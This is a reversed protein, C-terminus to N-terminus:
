RSRLSNTFANEDAEAERRRRLVQLLGYIAFGVSMLLVTNFIAVTQASYFHPRRKSELGRKPSIAKFISNKEDNKLSKELLLKLIQHNNAEPYKEKYGAVYSTIISASYSTGNMSIVDEGLAYINVCSGRNTFDSAYGHKNSSGVKIINKGNPSYNCGEEGDDGASVIVTIRNSINKITENLADSHPGYLPLLLINTPQINDLVSLLSSLNINGDCSIAEIFHVKSHRSFSYKPHNLLAETIFRHNNCRPTNIITIKVNEGTYISKYHYFYKFLLNLGFFRFIFNDLLYNNFFLNGTNIIRFLYLPIVSSDKNKSKSSNFPKANSQKYKIDSPLLTEDKNDKIEDNSAIKFVKDEEINISDYENQLISILDMSHENSLCFSLGFIRKQYWHHIEVLESSSLTNKIESVIDSKATLIFCKKNKAQIIASHSNPSGSKAEENENNPRQIFNPNEAQNEISQSKLHNNNLKIKQRPNKVNQQDLNPSYNRDELYRYEDDTINTLKKSDKENDKAERSKGEFIKDDETQNPELRKLSAPIISIEDISQNKSEENINSADNKGDLKMAHMEIEKFKKNKNFDPKIDKIIVEILEKSPTDHYIVPQVCLIRIFNYFLM